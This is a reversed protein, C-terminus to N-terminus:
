TRPGSRRPAAALLGAAAARLLALLGPGAGPPEPVPVEVVVEPGAHRYSAEGLGHLLALAQSNTALVTAEFCRIGSEYAREALADLLATGVGRGQWGDVV